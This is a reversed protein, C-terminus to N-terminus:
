EMSAYHNKAYDYFVGNSANYKTFYLEFAKKSEEFQGLEKYCRAIRYYSEEAYWATDSYILSREYAPIADAYSANRYLGDGTNFANQGAETFTKDKLYNYLLKGEDTLLSTNITLLLDASEDINEEMYLMAGNILANTTGVQDETLDYTELEEKLATVNRDLADVQQKLNDITEDKDQIKRQYQEEVKTLEEELNNVQEPTFLFIIALMGILIGLIFIVIQSLSAIGRDKRRNLISSQEFQNAVNSKTNYATAVEEEIEDGPQIVEKYYVAIPNRSDLALVNNISQLAKNQQKTRLYCYALLNNAAIFSPNIHVAKRLKIIALDESKQEIHKLANNYMSITSKLQEYKRKHSSAYLKKMYQYAKNENENSFFQFSIQWQRVAEGIEGIRFYLLGLLNRADIFRKDFELGRNLLQIATTIDRENAKMLARNYLRRSTVYIKKLVESNIQCEPCYDNILEKECLPCKMM